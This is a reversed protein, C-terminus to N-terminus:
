FQSSDLPSIPGSNPAGPPRVEREGRGMVMRFIERRGAGRAVRVGIARTRQEVALALIGYLGLGALVFALGAFFSMVLTTFRPRGTTAAVVDTMLVQRSDHRPSDCSSDSHDDGNRRHVNCV